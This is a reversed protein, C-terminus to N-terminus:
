YELKFKSPLQELHSTRFLTPLLNFTKHTYCVHQLAGGVCPTELYALDVTQMFFLYPPQIYKRGWASGVRERPSVTCHVLNFKM